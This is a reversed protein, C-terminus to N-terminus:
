ADVINLKFGENDEVARQLRLDPFVGRALQRRVRKELTPDCRCGLIVSKIWSEKIPLLYIPEGTKPNIVIQGIKDKKKECESLNHIQRWEREYKWHVSKRRTTKIVDARTRPSNKDFIPSVKARAKRYQVSWMKTGYYGLGASGSAIGVAIGKHEDAYHSWMLIDDPPEALCLVGCIASVLKPHDRQYGLAKKPLDAMWQAAFVERNERMKKDFEARSPKYPTSALFTEYTSDMAAVQDLMKLVDKQAVNTDVIPSFEFPDNLEVPRTVKVRLTELIEAGRENCYKYLVPPLERGHRAM